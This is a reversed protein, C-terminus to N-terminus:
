ADRNHVRRHHHRYPPMYNMASPWEKGWGTGCHENYRDLGNHDDELSYEEIKHYKRDLGADRKNFHPMTFRQTYYTGLVNCWWDYPLALDM